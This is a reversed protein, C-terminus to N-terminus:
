PCPIIEECLSIRSSLTVRPTIDFSVSRIRGAIEDGACVGVRADRMCRARMKSESAGRGTRRGAVRGARLLPVERAMPAQHQFAQAYSRTYRPLMMPGDRRTGREHLDTARTERTPPILLPHMEEPM